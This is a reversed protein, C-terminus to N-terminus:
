PESRRAAVVTGLFMAVLVAVSEGVTLVLRETDGVFPSMEVDRTPGGQFIDGLFEADSRGRDRFSQAPRLGPEDLLRDSRRPWWEWVSPSLTM